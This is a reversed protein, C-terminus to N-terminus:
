FYTDIGELLKKAKVKAIENVLRQEPLLDGRMELTKELLERYLAADQMQVAYYKAFLVYGMLFKGGSLEIFRDFHYKAKEHSGGFMESRGGYYSAFFMHPGGYYYGEDLELVRKMMIEVKGMQAIAAPSDRSLNIWNGWSNATWFLAPVDARKFGELAKALGEINSNLADRFGSNRNLIRLGYGKAREYFIKAREPNDDEVFGLAYGTFGQSALTLLNLNDPDGKILGELLKLNSMIAQEAIVLDEEEYLAQVGYNLVSGTTRIALKDLSCGSFSFFPFIILITFGIAYRLRANKKM